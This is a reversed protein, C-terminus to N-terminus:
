QNKLWFPKGDLFVSLCAAFDENREYVELIESNVFV